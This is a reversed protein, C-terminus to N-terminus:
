QQPTSLGCSQYGDAFVLNFSTPIHKNPDPNYVVDQFSFGIEPDPYVVEWATNNLDRQLHSTAILYTNTVVNVAVAIRKTGISFIDFFYIVNGLSDRGVGQWWAPELPTIKLSGTELVTPGDVTGRTTCQMTVTAATAAAEAPTASPQTDIDCVQVLDPYKITFRTGSRDFVYAVGRGPPYVIQWTSGGLSGDPGGESTGIFFSGANKGTSPSIQIYILQPKASGPPAVNGVYYDYYPEKSGPNKPRATGHIWRSGYPLITDREDYIGNAVVQKDLVSLGSATTSYCDWATPQPLFLGSAPSTQANLPATSAGLALLVVILLLKRRM